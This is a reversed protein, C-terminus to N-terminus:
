LVNVYGSLSSQHPASSVQAFCLVGDRVSGSFSTAASRFKLAYVYRLEFLKVNSSPLVFNVTEGVTICANADARSEVALKILEVHGWHLM